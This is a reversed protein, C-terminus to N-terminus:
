TADGVACRLRVSVVSLTCEIRGPGGAASITFSEPATAGGQGIREVFRLLGPLDSTVTLRVRYRLVNERREPRAPKASRVVVGTERADAELTKLLTSLVAENSTEADLMANGPIEALRADVRARAALNARLEAHTARTAHFADRRARWRGNLPLLVWQVTLLVAVALGAAATFTASYPSFHISLHKM